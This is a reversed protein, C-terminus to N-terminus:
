LSKSVTFLVRGDCLTSNFCEAKSMDTDTYGLEFGVGAYETHLGVKWDMYDVPAGSDSFQQNGISANLSVAQALQVSVSGNVYTAPGVHGFFEPSYFVSLGFTPAMAVGSPTYGLAFKGEWYNYDLSSSAGPYSYYLAGVDWSLEKTIEGKFGTYYDLEVSAQDGDNFNVNSGWTGAYFGSAHSVDIGGQIAPSEDTQSIGRFVYDTTLGVNGTVSWDDAHAVTLGLPALACVAALATLRRASRPTKMTM